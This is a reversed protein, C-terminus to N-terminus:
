FQYRFGQVGAHAGPCLASQSTRASAVTPQQSPLLCNPLGVHGVRMEPLTAALASSPDTCGAPETETIFFLM